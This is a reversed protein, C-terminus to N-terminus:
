ISLNPKSNQVHFQSSTLSCKRSEDLTSYATSQQSSCQKSRDDWQQLVALLRRTIKASVNRILFTIPPFGSTSVAGLISSLESFFVGALRSTAWQYFHSHFLHLFSYLLQITSLSDGCIRPSISVIYKFSLCKQKAFPLFNSNIHVLM